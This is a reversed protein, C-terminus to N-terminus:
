EKGPLLVMLRLSSLVANTSQCCITMLTFKAILIDELLQSKNQPNLFVLLNHKLNM